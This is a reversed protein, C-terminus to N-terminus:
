PKPRVTFSRQLSLSMVIGSPCFIFTLATSVNNTMSRQRFLIFMFSLAITKRFRPSLNHTVTTMSVLRSVDSTQSIRLPSESVITIPFVFMNMSFLVAVFSYKSLSSLVNLVSFVIEHSFINYAKLFYISCSISFVVSVIDNRSFSFAVPRRSVSILM